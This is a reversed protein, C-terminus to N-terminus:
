LMKSFCTKAAALLGSLTDATARWMLTLSAIAFSRIRSLVRLHEYM